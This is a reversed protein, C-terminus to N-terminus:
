QPPAPRHLLSLSLSSSNSHTAAYCWWLINEQSLVAPFSCGEWQLRPHESVTVKEKLMEEIPHRCGQYSSSHPEERDVVQLHLMKTDIIYQGKRPMRTCTVAGVGCLVLLSSWNAWIHGFKQCNYCQTLGTEANYVEVRNAIHCLNMLEFIEHSKSMRPITILFFPINVTATGEAPSPRTNSM